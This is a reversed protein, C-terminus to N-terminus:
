GKLVSKASNLNENLSDLKEQLVFLKEKLDSTDQGKSSKEQITAQLEFIQLLLNETTASM